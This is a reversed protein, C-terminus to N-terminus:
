RRPPARPQLQWALIRIDAQSQGRTRRAKRTTSKRLCCTHCLVTVSRESSSACFSRQPLSPLLTLALRAPPQLREALQRLGLCACAPSSRIALLLCSVACGCGFLLTQGSLLLQAAGSRRMLATLVAMQM